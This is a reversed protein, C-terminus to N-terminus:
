TSTPVGDAREVAERKLGDKRLFLFAGTPGTRPDIRPQMHVVAYGMRDYLRRADFNQRDVKIYMREFGWTAAVAEVEEVLERGLGRQRVGSKVALNALYPYLAPTPAPSSPAASSASASEEQGKGRREPPAPLLGLEVCGLLGDEGVGELFRGSEAEDRMAVLLAHQQPGKLMGQRSEAWKDIADTRAREKWGPVPLFPLELKEFEDVCLAAAARVILGAAPQIAWADIALPLVALHVWQVNPMVDRAASPAARTLEPFNGIQPM